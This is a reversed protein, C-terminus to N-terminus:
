LVTELLLQITQTTQMDRFRFKYYIKLESHTGCEPRARFLCPLGWGTRGRRCLWRGPWTEAAGTYWRERARGSRHWSRDAPWSPASTRSPWASWPGSPHPWSAPAPPAGGPSSWGPVRETTCSRSWANPTDPVTERASASGYGVLRSFPRHLWPSVGVDTKHKLNHNNWTQKLQTKKEFTKAMKKHQSTSAPLLKLWRKLLLKANSNIYRM